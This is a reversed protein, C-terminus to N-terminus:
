DLAADPTAKIFQMLEKPNKYESNFTRMRSKSYDMLKPHFWDFFDIVLFSASTRRSGRGIRQLFRITSKGSSAIIVVNIEPMDTGIGVAMTGITIMAGKHKGVKQIKQEKEFSPLEGHIIVV